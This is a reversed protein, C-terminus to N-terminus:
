GRSSPEWREGFAHKAIGGLGFGLPGVGRSGPDLFRKWAYGCGLSEPVVACRIHRGVAAQVPSVHSRKLSSLCLSVHTRKVPPMAEAVASVICPVWIM